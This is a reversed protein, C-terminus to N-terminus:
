LAFDVFSSFYIAYVSWPQNKWPSQDSFLSTSNSRWTTRIWCDMQKFFKGPEGLTTHMTSEPSNQFWVKYKAVGVTFRTLLNDDDVAFGDKGVLGFFWTEHLYANPFDPHKLISTRYLATRGSLVFVGQDLNVSATCEYNHRELYNCAIFNLYNPWSWEFEDRRVRKNTGVAGITPDEFPALALKLYDPGWFVHDDALVTISTEVHALASAIQLRKSPVDIAM